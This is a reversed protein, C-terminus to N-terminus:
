MERAYTILHEPFVRGHPRRVHTATLYTLLFGTLLDTCDYEAMRLFCFPPGKGRNRLTKKAEPAAM